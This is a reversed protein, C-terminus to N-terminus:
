APWGPERDLRVKGKDLLVMRGGIREVDTM